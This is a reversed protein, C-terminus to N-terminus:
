DYETLRICGCWQHAVFSGCCNCIFLGGEQSFENTNVVGESLLKSCQRNECIISGKCHGICRVGNLGKRTSTNIKWWRGDKSRDVWQNETCNITIIQTGDIDWPVKELLKLQIGVFRKLDISRRRYKNKKNRSEPLVAEPYEPFDDDDDDNNEELELQKACQKASVGSITEEQTEYEESNQTLDVFTEECDRNASNNEPLEVFGKVMDVGEGVKDSNNDTLDVFSEECDHNASNNEPLEVFGKVMDVGEGVKDSNKDTRHDVQKESRYIQYDDVDGDGDDFDSLNEIAVGLSDYLKESRKFASDVEDAIFKFSNNDIDYTKSTDGEDNSSSSSDINTPNTNTNSTSPISPTIAPPSPKVKVVANYHDLGHYSGGMCEYKLYVDCNSAVTVCPKDVIQLMDM